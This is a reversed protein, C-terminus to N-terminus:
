LGIRVEGVVQRRVVDGFNHMQIQQNALNTGKISTVVKGGAWRVGFTGNLLTYSDTSSAFRADLVDQWYAEDTFSVSVTGLYRGYNVNAGVNVRNPAPWNVDPLGFPRPFNVVPRWQYSYNAFVGVSSSVSADVGLEVGKDKV